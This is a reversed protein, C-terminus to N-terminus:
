SKVIAVIPKVDQRDILCPWYRFVPHVRPRGEAYGTIGAPGSTILPMLEHSFREVAERSRDFVAIRLVVERLDERDFPLPTGPVSDGAGLCEITAERLEFGADRVRRLVIEGCRRAKVIANQGFLTLLGQARYGDRYTASVKYTSSVERGRAGLVLVRDYGQDEVRLGLFSVIADPSLYQDPDGIEYLLQEKVTREDVRRGTSPPKTVICSGDPSVEVIPFGIHAPDPLDLWHTSIGGTVQTGCEILHGAVTAGAIRDHDTWDWGFQHVCPGVTLSPDAVRGTLVM